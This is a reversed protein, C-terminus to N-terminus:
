TIKIQQLNNIRRQRQHSQRSQGHLPAYQLRHATARFQVVSVNDNVIHNDHFRKHRVRTPQFPMRLLKQAPPRSHFDM